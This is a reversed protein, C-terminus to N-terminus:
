VSLNPVREQFITTSWGDINFEMISVCSFPIGSESASAMKSANKAPHLFYSMYWSACCYGLRLKSNM